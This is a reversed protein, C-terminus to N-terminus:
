KGCFPFFFRGGSNNRALNLLLMNAPSNQSEVDRHLSVKGFIPSRSLPYNFIVTNALIVWYCKMEM